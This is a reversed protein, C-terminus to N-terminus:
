GITLARAPNEILLTAIAAEDVGRRTLSPVIHRLIHDYGYGGHRLLQTKMCVDQSLLLQRLHGHDLLEVLTSERVSDHTRHGGLGDFYVELGFCDYGLYVGTDAVRLQYDLDMNGDMHCIIVKSPAVGHRTVRDVVSPATWGSVPHVHISLPLGTELQVQCAADLVKWEDPHVPEGTGIEGIVGPLVSTGCAGSCVENMLTERLSDVTSVSVSEPHSAQIYYGCGIVVTVGARHAIDRISDPRQGLGINTVDVVTKGGSDRYESVEQVALDVDDMVLNDDFVLPNRRAEGLMEMALPKRSWEQQRDTQPQEQWCRLDILLHEHVM